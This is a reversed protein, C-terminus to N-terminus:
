ARVCRLSSLSGTSVCFCWVKFWVFQAAAWEERRRPQRRRTDVAPAFDTAVGGRSNRKIVAPSVPLSREFNLSRFRAHVGTPDRPISPYTLRRDEGRALDGGQRRQHDAPRSTSHPREARVGRRSDRRLSRVILYGGQGPDHPASEPRWRGRGNDGSIAALSTRGGQRRQRDAPRSTSHPREARVARHHRATSSRSPLYAAEGPRPAGSRTM